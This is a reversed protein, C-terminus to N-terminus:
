TYSKYSCIFMNFSLFIFHSSYKFWTLFLDTDQITQIIIKEHIAVIQKWNNYNLISFILDNMILNYKM